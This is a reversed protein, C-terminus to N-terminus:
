AAPVKAIPCGGFDSMFKEEENRLPALCARYDINHSSIATLM